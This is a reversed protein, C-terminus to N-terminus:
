YNKKTYKGQFFLDYFLTYKIILLGTRLFTLRGL